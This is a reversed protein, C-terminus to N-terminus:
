VFDMRYTCPAFVDLLSDFRHNAWRFLTLVKSPIAITFEHVLVHLFLTITGLFILALITNRNKM